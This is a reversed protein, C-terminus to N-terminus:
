RSYMYVIHRFKTKVLRTAEISMYPRVSWAKKNGAMKKTGSKVAKFTDTHKFGYLTNRWLSLFCLVSKHTYVTYATYVTFLLELFTIHKITKSYLATKITYFFQVATTM